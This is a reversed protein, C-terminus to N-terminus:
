NDHLGSMLDSKIKLFDKPRGLDPRDFERTKIAILIPGELNFIENFQQKFIEFNEFLFSKKYNVAKALLMFDVTKSMTPQGGTSEYSNNDFIFHIINKQNLNGVISLNGLHMLASGDGDFVLIKKSPKALAISSAIASCHGMAGVNYFVNKDSKGSKEKLSYLERSTLGTTSVLVSGNSNKLIFEIARERVIGETENSKERNCYSRNKEDSNHLFSGKKVVLAYISNNSRAFNIAKDVQTEFTSDLILYPIELLDLLSLTIRGMKIHQPEDNGAEGRFGILLLLPISFLEKNVLSTLPDLANCLGSNQMYAITLDGTALYNGACLALASGENPAYINTLKESISLTSVWNKLISDPVGSYFFIGKKIFYNTLNFPDIM